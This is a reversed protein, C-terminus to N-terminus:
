SAEVSFGRTRQLEGVFTALRKALLDRMRAASAPFETLVRHFLARSIKLVTTPERATATVPRRSSAILALEGILADPGAVQAAGGDGTALAISGTMVFYGADAADGTRFVVDGSRLIRAEASFAILRLAELELEALLPIRALRRVDDDLAM